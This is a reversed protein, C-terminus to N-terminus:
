FFFLYHVFYHAKLETGYEDENSIPITKGIGLNFEVSTLSM